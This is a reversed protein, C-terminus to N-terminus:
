GSTRGTAGRRGKADALGPMGLFPAVQQAITEAAERQAQILRRRSDHRLAAKGNVVAKGTANEVLRWGLKHPVKSNPQCTTVLSWGTRPRKAERALRHYCLETRLGPAGDLLALVTRETGLREAYTARASHGSVVVSLRQENAEGWALPRGFLGIVCLAAALHKIM